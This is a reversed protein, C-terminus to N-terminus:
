KILPSRQYQLMKKGLKLQTGNHNWEIHDFIQYIIYLGRGSEKEWQPLLAQELELDREGKVSHLLCKNPPRFGPGNDCILWWYYDDIIQFQVAVEKNPDLGNGHKAANVLAEQLGLRMEAQWTQPIDALLKDLVPSLYLTSAFSLQFSPQQKVLRSSLTIV